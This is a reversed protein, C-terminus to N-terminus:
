REPKELVAHLAESRLGKRSMEDLLRPLAELVVPQGSSDRASSGDHLLLIDGPCLGRGLRSAVRAGDRTVTDFGRRSWSVLSLGAKALVAALWPNQIRYARPLARGDV